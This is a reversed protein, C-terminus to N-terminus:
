TSPLPELQDPHAALRARLDNETQLRNGPRGLVAAPTAFDHSRDVLSRLPAHAIQRNQIRRGIQQHRARPQETRPAAGGDFRHRPEIPVRAHGHPKGLADGSESGHQRNLVHGRPKAETPIRHFRNIVCRHRHPQSGEIEGPHSANGDIFERDLLAMAIGRAHDIRRILAYQPDSATAASFVQTGEELQQSRLSAGGQLNGHHIHTFRILLLRPQM